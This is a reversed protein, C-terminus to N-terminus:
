APLYGKWAAHWHPAVPPLPGESFEQEDDPWYHSTGDCWWTWFKVDHFPGRGLLRATEERQRDMRERVILLLDESLPGDEVAEADTITVVDGYAIM